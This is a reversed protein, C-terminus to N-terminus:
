GGGCIGDLWDAIDETVRQWGDELMMGHGMDKYIHASSGTLSATWHVHAYPILQDKEAGMVKLPTGWVALVNPFFPAYLGLVALRSEPQFRDLYRRAIEKPVLDSFLAAHLTDLTAAGGAHVSAVETFLGPNTMMLQMAPAALGTPPVPAMLVAGALTRREAAQWALFGGMSHGILVPPRPMADVAALVCERYDDIGYEQLQAFDPRKRRGPLDLAHCEFGRASFWPLFNVDWCWAGAFAGHIFLLPPADRKEDPMHSILHPEM